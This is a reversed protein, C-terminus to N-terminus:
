FRAYIELSFENKSNNMVSEVVIEINRRLFICKKFGYKKDLPVCIRGDQNQTGEATQNSKM